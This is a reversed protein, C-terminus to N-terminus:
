DFDRQESEDTSNHSPDDESDHDSHFDEAWESMRAKMAELYEKDRGGMISPIFDELLEKKIEKGRIRGFYPYSTIKKLNPMKELLTRDPLAYPEPLSIQEVHPMFSSVLHKPLSNWDPRGNFDITTQQALM